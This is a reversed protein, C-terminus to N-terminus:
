GLLNMSKQLNIGIHKCTEFLNICSCCFVTFTTSHEMFVQRSCEAPLCTSQYCTITDHNHIWFPLHETTWLSCPSLNMVTCDIASCPWRGDVYKKKAFKKIRNKNIFEIPGSCLGALPWFSWLDCSWSSSALIGIPNLLLAPQTQLVCLAPPALVQRFLFVHCFLLGVLHVALLCLHRELSYADTAWTRM